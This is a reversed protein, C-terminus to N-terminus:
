SLPTLLIGKIKWGCLIERLKLHHDYVLFRGELKRMAQGADGAV